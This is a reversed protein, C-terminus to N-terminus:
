ITSCQLRGNDFQRRRCRGFPAFLGSTMPRSADWRAATARQMRRVVGDPAAQAARDPTVYGGAADHEGELRAQMPATMPALRLLAPKM